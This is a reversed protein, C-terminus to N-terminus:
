NAKEIPLFAFKEFNVAPNAMFADESLQEVLMNWIAKHGEDERYGRIKEVLKQERTM